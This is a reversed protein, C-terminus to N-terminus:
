TSRLRTLGRAFLIGAFVGLADAAFDEISSTRGEAFRQLYEEIGVPTLVLVSSLPIHALSGTKTVSRHRLAGDLTGTLLAGMAFHLAKDLNTRSLIEPVGGVYAAFSAVVAFAGCAAFALWWTRRGM